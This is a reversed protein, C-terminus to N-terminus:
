NRVTSLRRRIMGAQEEMVTLQKRVFLHYIILGIQISIVAWFKVQSKTIQDNPYISIEGTKANKYVHLPHEAKFQAEKQEAGGFRLLMSRESYAKGAVSYSVDLEGHDQRGTVISTSHLTAPVSTWGAQNNQLEGAQVVFAYICVASAVLTFVSLIVTNRSCRDHAIQEREKAKASLSTDHM